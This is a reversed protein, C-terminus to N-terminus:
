IYKEEQVESKQLANQILATSGCHCPEQGGGSGEAPAEVLVKLLYLYTHVQVNESGKLFYQTFSTMCLTKQGANM